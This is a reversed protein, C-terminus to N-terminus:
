SGAGRDFLDSLAEILSASPRWSWVGCPEANGPLPELASMGRVFLYAIGKSTAALRPVDDFVAKSASLAGHTQLFLVSRPGAYEALEKEGSVAAIEPWLGGVAQLQSKGTTPLGDGVHADQM